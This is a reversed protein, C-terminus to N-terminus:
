ALPDSLLNMSKWSMVTGNERKQNMDGGYIIFGSGRKLGACSEFWSLNEFFDSIITRSSKIEVPLFDQGRDVLCDIERGTKDRWYYCNNQLGNNFRKKIMESLVFSEFIGGKLYHTHLQEEKEIGLLSCVLGPDFFYLKPMKIIRKSFNKYFPQLLFVIFSSELISLWAKVTNHTIGCDNGLESLNLIQGCRGACLKLFRQFISLDSINKILRVDREIYTNIYNSYWESPQLESDYIRPYFGKFLYHPYDNLESEHSKLEEMSLPLLNFIAVRGALSQSIGEMLLFNQSGSIVYRGPKGTEDVLTQMYSFLHPARQIEDIIAPAPWTKFFGRPDELAFARNDPDELSVYKLGPFVFKILTTKGSQRPGTLSVVPYKEFAKKLKAALIRDIM